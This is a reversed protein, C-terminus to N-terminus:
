WCGLSKVLANLECITKVSAHTGTARTQMKAQKRETLLYLKKRKLYCINCLKLVEVKGGKKIMDVSM